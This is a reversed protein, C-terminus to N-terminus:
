AAISESRPARFVEQQSVWHSALWLIYWLNAVPNKVATANVTNSPNFRLNPRLPSPWRPLHLTALTVHPMMAPTNIANDLNHHTTATANAQAPHHVVVADGMAVVHNVIIPQGM